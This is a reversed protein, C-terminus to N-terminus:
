GEDSLSFKLLDFADDGGGSRIKDEEIVIEGGRLQAVKFSLQRAADDVPRLEDEVDEGTVRSGALTLKLNLQRLEFVLEGRRAPRPLAM